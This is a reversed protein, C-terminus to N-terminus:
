ASFSPTIQRRLLDPDDFPNAVYLPSEVSEPRPDAYEALIREYNWESDAFIHIFPGGGYMSVEDNLSSLQYGVRYVGPREIGTVEYGPGYLTHGGVLNEAPMNYRQGYLPRAGDWIVPQFVYVTEPEQRGPLIPPQQFTILSRLDADIKDLRMLTDGVEPASMVQTGPPSGSPAPAQPGRALGAAGQAGREVAETAKLLATTNRKALAGGAVVLAYAVNAIAAVTTAAAAAAEPLAASVAAPAVVAPGCGSIVFGGTAVSSGILLRRTIM